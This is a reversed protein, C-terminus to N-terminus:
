SLPVGTWDPPLWEIEWRSLRLEPPAPPLQTIMPSPFCYVTLLRKSKAEFSIPTYPAEPSGLDGFGGVTMTGDTSVLDMTIWFHGYLTMDLRNELECEVRVYYYHTGITSSVWDIRIIRFGIQREWGEPPEPYLPEQSDRSLCGSACALVVVAFLFRLIRMKRM